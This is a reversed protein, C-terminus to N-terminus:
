RRGSCTRSWSMGAARSRGCCASIPRGTTVWPRRPATMSRALTAASGDPFPHALALDPQIWSLAHQELPWARLVPSGAGLPHVASCPDHWFGPLTLEETRAGGGVRDAGECVVVELGARALTIAAALGNPGAGVVVADVADM